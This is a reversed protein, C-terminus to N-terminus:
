GKEEIKGAFSQFEITENPVYFTDTCFEYVSVPTDGHWLLYAFDEEHITDDVEITAGEQSFEEFLGEFLERIEDLGRYVGLNTVVVSDEEYDAMIEEMDQSGFAELHHDLVANTDGMIDRSM